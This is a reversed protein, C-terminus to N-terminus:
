ALGKDCLSGFGRKENLIRYVQQAAELSIADDPNM